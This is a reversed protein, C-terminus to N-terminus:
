TAMESKKFKTLLAVGLWYLLFFPIGPIFFLFLIEFGKPLNMKTIFILTASVIGLLSFLTNIIPCWIKIQQLKYLHLSLWMVSIFQFYRGIVGITIINFNEYNKGFEEANKGQSVWEKLGEPYLYHHTFEWIYEAFTVILIVTMIWSTTKKIKLSHSSFLFLIFGLFLLLALFLLSYRLHEREPHELMKLSLDPASALGFIGFLPCVLLFLLAGGVSINDFSQPFYNFILLVISVIAISIVTCILIYRQFSNTEVYPSYNSIAISLLFPLIVLVLTTLTIVIKKKTSTTM